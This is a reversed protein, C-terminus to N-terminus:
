FRGGKSTKGPGSERSSSATGQGGQVSGRELPQVRAKWTSVLAATAPSKGRQTEGEDNIRWSDPLAPVRQTLSLVACPCLLPLAPSVSLRPSGQEAKEQMVATWGQTEEPPPLSPEGWGSDPSPLTGACGAGLVLVVWGLSLSCPNTM